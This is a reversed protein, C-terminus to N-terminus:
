YHVMTCKVLILLQIDQVNRFLEGKYTFFDQTTTVISIHLACASISDQAYHLQYIQASAM